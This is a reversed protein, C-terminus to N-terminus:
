KKKGSKMNACWHYMKAKEGSAKKAKARLSTVSGKCSAGSRKVRGPRSKGKVKGDAFNEVAFEQNPTSFNPKRMITKAVLDLEQGDWQLAFPINVDTRMDKMVAEADPGLQAIPKGHQKYIQKFLRTLEAMTIPKANRPDNVRDKFHKSFEVDIGLSAFLRDAYTELQQLDQDTITGEVSENKKKGDAFNEGIYYPTRKMWVEYERRYWEGDDGQLEYVWEIMNTFNIIADQPNFDKEVLVFNGKKFGMDGRMMSQVFNKAGRKDYAFPVFKEDTPPTDKKVYRYLKTIGSFDTFSPHENGIAIINSITDELIANSEYYDRISDQIDYWRDQGYKKIMKAQWQEQLNETLEAYRM